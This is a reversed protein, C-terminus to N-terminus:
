NRFFDKIKFFGDWNEPIPKKIDGRKVAVTM